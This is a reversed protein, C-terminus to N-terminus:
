RDQQEVTRICAPDSGLPDNDYAYSRARSGGCVDKFECVGCPGHLRRGRVSKLIDNERYVRALGDERVNGIRVPLLGGPYITGDHGVFVVGDGDLTGKAWLTSMGNPEGNLEVLDSRLKLYTEDHWDSKGRSRESVVRRIFPAEVCRITLGTRSVDYLFNCMSESEAPSLDEVGTGRGVRVLFFLEWTKVGLTRVLNFMRPLERFNRKMVATNVQVNLGLEVAKGIRELTRDFTGPVRRISDHTESCTGDLSISVAAAGLEAIRDLAEDTLLETVAPSVAFRVRAERAYSLLDYLDSRRFPDGGTFVMTPYPKGFSAVQDILRFGEERTLEGSLPDTLASARCHVCALSCARTTEWFVLVPKDAFGM